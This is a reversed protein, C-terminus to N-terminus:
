CVAAHCHIACACSASSAHAFSLLRTVARTDSNICSPAETSAGLVGGTEDVARRGVEGDPAAGAERQYRIASVVGVVSSPLSPLHPTPPPAEMTTDRIIDASTKEGGGVVFVMAEANGCIHVDTRGTGGRRCANGGGCLSRHRSAKTVGTGAGGVAEFSGTATTAVGVRAAAESSVIWRRTTPTTWRDSITYRIWSGITVVVVSRMGPVVSGVSVTVAEETLFFFVFLVSREGM